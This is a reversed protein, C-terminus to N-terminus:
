DKHRRAYTAGGIIGLFLGAVSAFYAIFNLAFTSKLVGLVMLLPLVVGAVVLFPLLATLALGTVRVGDRLLTVSNWFTGGFTNSRHVAASVDKEAVYVSLTGYTTQERMSKLQATLEEITLQVGDIRDQVALMQNVTATEQLFGVLRTEVARYHRLRARLDVYQATVDESSTSLSRVDGLRSFREIATEFRQEPVRVVVTAYPDPSLASAADSRQAGSPAVGTDLPFPEIPGSSGGGLASSMVYGGLAAAGSAHAEVSVAAAASGEDVSVLHTVGECFAGVIRADLLRLFTRRGAADTPELDVIARFDRGLPVRFGLVAPVDHEDIVGMSRLRERLEEHPHRRGDLVGLTEASVARLLSTKGAGPASRILVLRDWLEDPLLDLADAGFSRLYRDLGQHAVQESTRARFPNVYSRM